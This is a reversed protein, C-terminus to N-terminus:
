HPKTRKGASVKEKMSRDYYDASEALAKRIKGTSEECPFLDQPKEKPMVDEKAYKTL